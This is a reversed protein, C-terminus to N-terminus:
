LSHLGCKKNYSEYFAVLEPNIRPTVIQLAEEFHRKHVSTIHINEQM